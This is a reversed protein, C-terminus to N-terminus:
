EEVLLWYRKTLAEEITKRKYDISETTNTEPDFWSVMYQDEDEESQVASYVTDIEVSVEDCFDYYLDESLKFKFNKIKSLEM